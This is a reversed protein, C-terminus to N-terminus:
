SSCHRVKLPKLEADLTELRCTKEAITADQQELRAILEATRACTSEMNDGAERLKVRLESEKSDRM